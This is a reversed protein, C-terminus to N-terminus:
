AATKPSIPSMMAAIVEQHRDEHHADRGGEDADQRGVGLDPDERRDDEDEEPEGLAQGETTLVAARRDVHGLVATVLVAALVGAPDLGGRRQAQQERQDHDEEEPRRHGRLVERIRSAAETRSDAFEADQGQVDAGSWFGRKATEHAPCATAEAGHRSLKPISSRWSM